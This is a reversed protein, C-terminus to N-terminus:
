GEKILDVVREKGALEDNVETDYEYDPEVHVTLVGKAAHDRSSLSWNLCFTGIDHPAHVYVMDFFSISKPNLTPVNQFVGMGGINTGHYGKFMIDYSGRDENSDAFSVRSDSPMISIDLNDLAETGDNTFVFHLPALSLNTKSKLPKIPTLKAQPMLFKNSLAQAADFTDTVPKLKEALAKEEPTIERPKPLCYWIRKYRPKITIEDFFFGESMFHLSCAKEPVHKAREEEVEKIISRIWHHMNDLSKVDSFLTITDHNIDFPMYELHEDEEKNLSALVIMHNEGKAHLAYGYEYMVNSNPMHKPLDHKEKPPFYTIVPTIDALFIDCHRIKQLVDADINRKGTRNRTDQDLFLDIGEEAFKEKAKNLAAFIIAKTNKRDNQWSFFLKYQPM